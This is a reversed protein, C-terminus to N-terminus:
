ELADFGSGHQLTQVGVRAFVSGSLWCFQVCVCFNTCLAGRLTKRTISPPANKRFFVAKTCGILLLALRIKM